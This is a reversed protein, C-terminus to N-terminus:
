VLTIVLESRSCLFNSATLMYVNLRMLTEGQRLEILPSYSKSGLSFAIGGFIFITDLLPKAVNRCSRYRELFLLLYMMCVNFIDM